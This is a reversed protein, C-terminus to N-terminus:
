TEDDGDTGDASEQEEETSEEIEESAEGSEYGDESPEDESAYGGDVGAEVDVFRRALASLGRLRKM